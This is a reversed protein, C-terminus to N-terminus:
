SFQLQRFQFDKLFEDSQTIFVIYGIVQDESGKQSGDSVATENGPIVVNVDVHRSLLIFLQNFHQLIMLAIDDLHFVVAILRFSIGTEDPNQVLLVLNGVEPGGATVVMRIDDNKM